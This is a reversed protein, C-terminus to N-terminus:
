LSKSARRASCPTARSSNTLAIALWCRTRVNPVAEMRPTRMAPKRVQSLEALQATKKVTGGILAQTKPIHSASTTLISRAESKQWSCSLMM